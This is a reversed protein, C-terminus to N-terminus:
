NSTAGRELEEVVRIAGFQAEARAAEERAMARIQANTYGIAPDDPVLYRYEIRALQEAPFADRRAFIMAADDFAILAWDRRRYRVISAPLNRREGSAVDVVEVKESYEDVALVASYKAILAHWKRSDHRAEADGAIFDGFLENRGDTLTRRAPYFTWELLGGFQDVNYINGALNYSRLAAVARMPFREDDVGLRHVDRQFAWALPVLALAAIVNSARRSINGLPPVLVPLAAFYLGQNRVYRYALAALIVFIVFRWAHARKDRTGLFLLLVLGMTVFLLPFIGFPSPLWEANVFAGSHIESSLRLPAILANWGFPNVLLAAASVAAVVWRRVDILMTIMALVPALLASPHVNIWVVTVCAYAITLPTLKMRSGLLGLAVVILLAAAAAPRVGLRDSAGAFAIAVILLAPGVDNERTAFVFGAAFIVAALLASVISIGSDGAIGHLAYLVIEYLWEGNIWPVHASAVALPDFRPIAHHEVIWRGTTLHWFYDYSRIPTIAAITVLLFFIAAAARRTM